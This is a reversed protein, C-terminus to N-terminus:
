SKLLSRPNYIATYFSRIWKIEVSSYNQSWSKLNIRIGPSEIKWDKDLQDAWPNGETEESGTERGVQQQGCSESSKFTGKTQISNMNYILTWAKLDQKKELARVANRISVWTLSSLTSPLLCPPCDKFRKCPLTKLGSTPASLAKLATNGATTHWPLVMTQTSSPLWHLQTDPPM